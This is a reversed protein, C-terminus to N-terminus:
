GNIDELACKIILYSSCAGPDLHGISRDGLFAARGKNAKINKTSEMSKKAISIVENYNKSSDLLSESVPEIVDIMTKDGINAKGRLKVGDVGEKFAKSFDERTIETKEGLAQAFKMFFTGYLPGSAGGVNAILTMAVKNFLEKMSNYEADMADNVLGFGKAMNYGHDGDGIERDLDTLYEKNEIIEQSINKLTEKASNIDM